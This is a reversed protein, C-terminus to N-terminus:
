SDRGEGVFLIPDADNPEEEGIVPIAMSHYHHLIQNQKWGWCDEVRKKMKEHTRQSTKKKKVM